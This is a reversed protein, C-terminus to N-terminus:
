AQTWSRYGNGGIIKLLFIHRKKDANDTKKHSLSTLVGSSVVSFAAETRPAARLYCMMLVGTQGTAVGTQGSNYITARERGRSFIIHPLVVCVKGRMKRVFYDMKKGRWNGSSKREWETMAARLDRPFSFNKRRRGKEKTAFRRRQREKKKEKKAQHSFPTMLSGAPPYFQLPSFFTKRRKQWFKALFLPFNESKKVDRRRWRGFRFKKQYGEEKGVQQQQQLSIGATWAM